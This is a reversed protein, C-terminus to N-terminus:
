GPRAGAGSNGAGQGARKGLVGSGGLGSGPIPVGLPVASVPEAPRGPVQDRRRSAGDAPAM